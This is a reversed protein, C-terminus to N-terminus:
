GCFADSYQKKDARFGYKHQLLRDGEHWGAVCGQATADLSHVTIQTSGDLHRASQGIGLVRQQRM